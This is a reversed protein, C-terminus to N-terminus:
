DVMWYDRPYLRYLNTGNGDVSRLYSEYVAMQKEPGIVFYIGNKVQKPSTGYGPLITSYVEDKRKYVEDLLNGDNRVKLLAKRFTRVSAPTLGDELDAAMAEGRVEYDSAARTPSMALSIIYNKMSTDRPSRKIEDIVFRLTQPLEPTREAYYRFRGSSPSSGVGTSYSLGAGTSKTYVSQKGGGAYLMSSLFRFLHERSTDAYTIMPASNIFVGTQSNPNILGVYVIDNAPMRGKIRQDILKTSAYSAKPSSGDKFGAVLKEIAPTIARGTAQSSILFLRANGKHLLERRIENLDDLTQQPSRSLDKKIQSCLYTWDASLSGDPVGVLLQQLDKAADSALIKATAPLSNFADLERTMDASLNAEPTKGSQLSTLFGKLQERDGHLQSMSGLFGDIANANQNDGADKLMWRLRFLSHSRTLFSSTALLLRNDQRYYADAPDTVWAEEANQMTRRTAALSQDVLDRIRNINEMKWYPAQLVTNIWEVARKSELANNGAAKVVLEARGTKFSTSYNSQLSLIEQQLQQSMQEFPVGKGEKIYGTETLLQPLLSLYVLRDQKIGQLNLAIGITAGTMNNFTSAVTKVNGVRTEKYDLNDDLTLPPNSIFNVSQRGESKELIATNNNYEEQYKRIADQDNTLNYKAKLQAAEADARQKRATEMEELLAPDPKSVAVYPTVTTLKWKSIYDRWINKGSKLQKEIEGFEPKFLLSKRFDPTGNMDRLQDYWTDGTNRFGFKPPTSIFKSLSRQQDTMNDRVRDNFEGLEPSGDPLSAIRSLEALITQRAQAAKEKTLNNASVGSLGFIIPLGKHNYLFYFTSQAELDAQRTKTDVFVKYLNSTPGNSFTTLFLNLLIKETGTVILSPPYSIFLDGPEQANKSPYAVMEVKGDEAPHPAPINEEINFKLQEPQTQLHTLIHDLKALATALAVKGPLSVIAGMNALHYNADHYKRIDEPTIQRIAEPTGGANYSLPHNEGYLFGLTTMYLRFQPNNMSVNMENFVSGKEELRLAKNVPDETVGWNRVERRIEEDSYDPHLLADMYNDFISFFVDPGAATYFHYATHSQDTYANSGALSMGEITNLQHGKNGKTILLHEQTHAEGKNSAPLTNVYIFSQPVTEIQLLDLTFGTPGHVFKAGMPNGIDNLYVAKTTFNNIKEGQSLDAFSPKNVQASVDFSLLLVFLALSSQCSCLLPRM